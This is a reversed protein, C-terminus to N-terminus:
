NMDEITLKVTAGYKDDLDKILKRKIFYLDMMKPREANINLKFLDMSSHAAITTYANLNLINVDFKDLIATTTHIIGPSNSLQVKLFINNYLDKMINLNNEILYYDNNTIFENTKIKDSVEASVSMIIDNNYRKINTNIINSGSDFITKTINSILGIQNKGIITFHRLKNM